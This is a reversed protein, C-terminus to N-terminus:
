LLSIFDTNLKTLVVSIDSLFYKIVADSKIYRQKLSSAFIQENIKLDSM